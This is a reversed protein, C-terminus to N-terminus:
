SQCRPWGAQPNKKKKKKTLMGRKKVQKRLPKSCGALDDRLSKLSLAQDAVKDHESPEKDALRASSGSTVTRCAVGRHLKGRATKKKAVGLHAGAETTIKAAAAAQINASRQERRWDWPKEPNESAWLGRRAARAKRQWQAFKPRKDYYEFHWAHGGKLMREQILVNGCYIDGVYREFKDKGYVHVTVSKGGILKVLENKSEKGNPMQLEPADIGRMRIKYKRALIEEGSISTIKYGAKDLSRLLADAKKNDRATCAQTWDNVMEHVQLPVNIFERPDTTDVFASFGDGDGICNKHVPLTNLVFQVGEPLSSPPHDSSSSSSSPFSPIRLNYFSLVGELDERQIRSLVRAIIDAAQKPTKPRMNRYAKLIRKYRKDQSIDKPQVIQPWESAPARPSRKMPGAGPGVSCNVWAKKSSTVNQGLAEPVMSTSEFNRLDQALSAVSATAPTVGCNPPRSAAKPRDEWNWVSQRGYQPRSTPPDYPNHDDGHEDGETFRRLINGM